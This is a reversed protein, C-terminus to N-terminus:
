EAAESGVPAKEILARVTDLYIAVAERYADGRGNSLAATREADVHDLAASVRANAV